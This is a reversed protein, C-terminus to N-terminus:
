RKQTGCISQNAAPPCKQQNKYSSSLKGTYAETATSKFATTLESPRSLLSLHPRAEQVSWSYNVCIDLTESVRREGM